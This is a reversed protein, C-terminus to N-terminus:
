FIGANSESACRMRLNDVHGRDPTNSTICHLTAGCIRFPIPLAIAFFFVFNRGHVLSSTRVNFVSARSSTFVVTIARFSL